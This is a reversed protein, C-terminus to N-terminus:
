DPHLLVIKGVHEKSLFAEQAAVIEELPFTAAVVPRIEGREVYGVLDAFVGPPQYTAGHLTLDKLYLDRVDLEVVPGAIAGSAVYRGGRRLLRTVQAFFGGAVVDVIVDFADDGFRDLLDVDRAVVEDAGLAAVAESKSAAAVAVVSAGRRAALQVAAHGVGGSAGTVLVREAGLGVRQLMNEATSSACPLSALEADSWDCDVAFTEDTHAVAYQAFAGDRESGFATTTFPEGHSYASQMTAVVVREGLRAPDVGAGVAVIRGCADAGQIRPFGLDGSWGLAQEPPAAAVDASSGVVERTYWGVRTNVDTNNVSSATVRLLVEDPGPTPVPVDHRVVLQDTGGYGLLHVATMTSPIAETM